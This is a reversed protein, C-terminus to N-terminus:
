KEGKKEVAPLVCLYTCMCVLEFECRMRKKVEVADGSRKSIHSPCM